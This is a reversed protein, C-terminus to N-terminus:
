ALLNVHPWKRAQTGAGLQGVFDLYAVKNDSLIRFSDLGKPSINVHGESDLPASGVFFMKQETIFKKGKDTLETRAM